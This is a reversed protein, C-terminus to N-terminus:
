REEQLTENLLGAIERQGASMALEICNAYSGIEYHEVRQGAGILASDGLSGRADEQMVENGEEVIGKMGKCPRSRARSGLIEFAQELRQVQGRTEELHQRLAQELESDSAARSM